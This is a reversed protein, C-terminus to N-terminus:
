FYHLQIDNKYNILSYATDYSKLVEHSHLNMNHDDPNDCHVWKSSQVSGYCLLIKIHIPVLPCSHLKRPHDAMGHHFERFIRLNNLTDAQSVRFIRVNILKSASSVRFIRLNNLTDVPGVRFIRVNNLTDASRVRFINVNINVFCFDPRSLMGTSEILV